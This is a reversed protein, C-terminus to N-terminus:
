LRSVLHELHARHRDRQAALRAAAAELGGDRALPEAMAFAGLHFRCYCARYLGAAGVARARGVRAGVRELEDRDSALVPALALAGLQFGCYCARSLGAVGAAPARGVRARVRELEDRDLDLEIEAGALDWAIDQEGVLDHGLAHDVADTKYLRGDPL